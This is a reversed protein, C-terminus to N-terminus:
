SQSYVQQAQNVTSLSKFESVSSQAKGSELTGLPISVTTGTLSSAKGESPVKKVTENSVPNQSQDGNKATALVPQGIQFPQPYPSQYTYSSIQM